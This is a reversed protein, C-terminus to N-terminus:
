WLYNEEPSARKKLVLETNNWMKERSIMILLQYTDGGRLFNSFCNETDVRVACRFKISESRKEILIAPINYCFIYGISCHLEKFSCRNGSREQFIVYAHNRLLVIGASQFVESM